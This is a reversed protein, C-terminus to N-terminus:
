AACSASDSCLRAAQLAVPGLATKSGESGASVTVILGISSLVNRALNTHDVSGRLTVMQPHWRSREGLCEANQLAGNLWEISPILRQQLLNQWGVIVVRMSVSSCM